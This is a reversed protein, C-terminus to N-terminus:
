EDGVYYYTNIEGQVPIFSSKLKTEALINKKDIINKVNKFKSYKDVTTRSVNFKEMKNQISDNSIYIELKIDDSIHKRM